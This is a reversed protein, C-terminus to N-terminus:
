FQTYVFAASDFGTGYCGFVLIIVILAILLPWRVIVRGRALRGNLDKVHECLIDVVLLIGLAAAAIIWELWPMVATMREAFGKFNWATLTQALLGLGQAPGNTFAFYQALLVLGWTRAMRLPRMWGGKPLNLTRDITKWLPELLLSAAMVLGFYAGYVVANWSAMHWIGILLFVMLTGLATPLTRATKKGVLRAAGKALGVGFCSTSFPYLVYSRFWAGLTIHWRRWYEAVSQAFFPRRFNEPLTIGLMRSVGRVVDLGGSFDAYLRLTYLIVGGLVFWGPLTEGGLLAETTAALRDAIVLKKFYGWLMLQFGATLNEPELRHGTTLQDELEKWTSIPGQPLQLFYGAFLLTRLPNKAAQAKGRYVDILYGATQFTFYSLGRPLILAAGFLAPYYKLFAMAGLDLVLLLALLLRSKKRELLLAGGWTVLTVAALHAATQWGALVAFVGSALLLALPRIRLPLLYYVLIVAAAFALFELSLISM